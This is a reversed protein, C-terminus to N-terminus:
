EEEQPKKQPEIILRGDSDTNDQNRIDEDQREAVVMWSVTDGSDSDACIINLTHDSVSGRVADWGSDNQVWVQPDRCLLEWTGETMGAAEDLDVQAYGGSLEVQGRYILDARPGELCSHVLDHTEPKVPHDIRFTKTGATLEGAVAVVGAETITMRLTPNGLITGDNTSASHTYFKMESATQGSDYNATAYMGIGGIGSHSQSDDKSFFNLYGFCEGDTITGDERSITLYPLTAHSVHLQSQPASTGIGM